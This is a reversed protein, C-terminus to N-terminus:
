KFKYEDVILETVYLYYCKGSIKGGYKDDSIEGQSLATKFEIDKLEGTGKWDLLWGKVFVIDGKNITDFGKRIKKNAPLIHLNSFENYRFVPKDEYEYSIHLVRYEHNVDLKQWNGEQATEGSLLSLDLPSVSNYFNNIKVQLTKQGIHFDDEYVDVYVARSWGQYSAKFVYEIDYGGIRAFQIPQEQSLYSISVDLPEGNYVVDSKTAYVYRYVPAKLVFNWVVLSAVVFILMYKKM